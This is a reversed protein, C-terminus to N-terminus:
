ELEALVLQTLAQKLNQEAEEISAGKAECRFGKLM